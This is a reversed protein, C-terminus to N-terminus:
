DIITRPASLVPTGRRGSNNGTLTQSQGSAHTRRRWPPESRRPTAPPEPFHERATAHHDQGAFERRVFRRREPEIQEAAVAQVAQLPSARFSLVGPGTDHHRQRSGETESHPAISAQANRKAVSELRFNSFWEILAGKDAGKAVATLENKM